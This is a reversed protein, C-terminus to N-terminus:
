QWVTQVAQRLEQLFLTEPTGVPLPAEVFLDVQDRISEVEQRVERWPVEGKGPLAPNFAENRVTGDSLHIKIIRSHFEKIWSTVPPDLLANGIDLCVGVEPGLYTLALAMAERTVLCHQPLNELAIRCGAQAAEDILCRLQPALGELIDVLGQGPYFTGPSFSISSIGREKACDLMGRVIELAYARRQPRPDTLNFRHLHLTALSRVPVPLACNTPPEEPGLCSRPHFAGELFSFGAERALRAMEKLPRNGRLIGAFAWSCVGINV